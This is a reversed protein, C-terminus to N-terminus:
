WFVLGLSVGVQVLDFSRRGIASRRFRESTWCTRVMDFAMSTTSAANPSSALAVASIGGRVTM